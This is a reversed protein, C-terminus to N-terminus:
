QKEKKEEEKKFDADVTEGQSDGGADKYISEGIKMTAGQLANTKEKISEVDEAEVAAKLEDIATQIAAADEAGVKDKYESLTKESSYLISDADNKAEIVAKRDKDASAFSEAEQVM